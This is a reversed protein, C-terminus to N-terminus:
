QSEGPLTKGPIGAPYSGFLRQMALPLEKAEFRGQGKHVEGVVEWGRYLEVTGGSIRFVQGTIWQADDSALYAVLPSVNEPAMRDFGTEDTAEQMGVSGTMRTLVIPSVANVTIGYRYLEQAVIITFGAIAAKAAGYNAQGPNGRLGAGSVTNIVRGAIRNDQGFQDRWYRSAHHTVAYTHKLHVRMVSDWDDETMNFIMRDRLIGANNVVVDLRGFVDISMRVLSEAADFASVDDLNAVAVGGTAEIEKVVQDAVSEDVGRGNLDSGTDNVVVSAGQRALELAHARGLGRGAGTVVAVKGDLVGM